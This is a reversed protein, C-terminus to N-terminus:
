DTDSIVFVSICVDKLNWTGEFKIDFGNQLRIVLVSVPLTQDSAVIFIFVIFTLHAACLRM